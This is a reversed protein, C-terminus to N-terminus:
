QISPIWIVGTRAGTKLKLKAEFLATSEQFVFRAPKTNSDLELKPPPQDCTEGVGVITPVVFKTVFM